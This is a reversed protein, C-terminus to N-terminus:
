LDLVVDEAPESCCILVNGDAPDDVPDPAYTVTGSMLGSECTHCVGTRCSWRVPVDCDEALELLSAYRQDWRVDLGSRAFSIQPGAGSDGPPPHPPRDAAAAIGPTQSPAAGFIETHIRAGDLGIGLLAASADAM